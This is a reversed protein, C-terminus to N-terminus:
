TPISAQRVSVGRARGAALVLRRRAVDVDYVTGRVLSQFLYAIREPTPQELAQWNHHLVLARWLDDINQELMWATPQQVLWGLVITYSWPVERPSIPVPAHAHRKSRHRAREGKSDTTTDARRERKRKKGSELEPVTPLPTSRRPASSLASLSSVAEEVARSTSAPCPEQVVSAIWPHMVLHAADYVPRTPDDDRRPLDAGLQTELDHTLVRIAQLSAAEAFALFRDVSTCLWQRVAAESLLPGRRVLKWNTRRSAAFGTFRLADTLMAQDCLWPQMLKQVDMVTTTDHVLKGRAEHERLWVALQPLTPRFLNARASSPSPVDLSHSSSRSSPSTTAFDDTDALSSPSSPLSLAFDFSDNSLTSTPSLSLPM